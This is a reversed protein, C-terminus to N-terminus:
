NMFSYYPDSIIPRLLSLEIVMNTQTPQSLAPLDPDDKLVTIDGPLFKYTDPILILASPLSSHLIAVFVISVSFSLESDNLMVTGMWSKGSADTVTLHATSTPSVSSFPEDSQHRATKETRALVEKSIAKSAFFGQSMTKSMFVRKSM